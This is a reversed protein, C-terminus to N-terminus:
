RPRDWQRVQNYILRQRPASPLGSFEGREYQNHCTPAASRCSRGGHRRAGASAGTGDRSSWLVSTPHSTRAESAAHQHGMSARLNISRLSITQAFCIPPPTSPGCISPLRRNSCSILRMRSRAQLLSVPPGLGTRCPEAMTRIAYLDVAPEIFPTVRFTQNRRARFSAPPLLPRLGAVTFRSVEETTPCVTASSTAM